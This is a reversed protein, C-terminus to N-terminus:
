FSAILGITGQLQSTGVIQRNVLSDIEQPRDDGFRAYTGRLRVSFTDDFAYEYATGLLWGKAARNDLPVGQDVVIKSGNHANIYGGSVSLLGDGMVIGATASLSWMYDSKYDASWGNDGGVVAPFLCAPCDIPRVENKYANDGLTGELGLVLGGEMQHRYGFLGGYYLNNKKGTFWFDEDLGSDRAVGVEAGVYFGDFRDGSDAFVAPSMAGALALAAMGMKLFM